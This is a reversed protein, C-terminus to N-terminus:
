ADNHIARLRFTSMLEALKEPKMGFTDALSGSAGTLSRSLEASSSMKQDTLNFCVLSITKFGGQRMEVVGFESVDVWAYKLKRGLMNQEFGHANLILTAPKVLQLMSLPLGLGFFGICLWSILINEGSRLMLIGIVVFISCGM